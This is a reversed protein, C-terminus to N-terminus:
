SHEQVFVILNGVTVDANLKSPDDPLDIELKKEVNITLEVMELSDLGLEGLTTEDTIEGKFSSDRSDDLAELVVRRVESQDHAM